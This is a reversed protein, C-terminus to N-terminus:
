GEAARRKEHEARQRDWHRRDIGSPIFRGYLRRPDDGSVLLAALGEASLGDLLGGVKLGHLGGREQLLWCLVEIPLYRRPRRKQAGGHSPPQVFPCDSAELYSPSMGCFKAAQATDWAPLLLLEVLIM